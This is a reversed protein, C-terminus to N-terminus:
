TVTEVSARLAHFEAQTQELDKYFLMILGYTGDDGWACVGYRLKPGGAEGCLAEGGLPGADYGTPLKVIETDGLQRKLFGELDRIKNPAAVALIYAMNKKAAEGYFASVVATAAPDAKLGAENESATKVLGADKSRARGGLTKPASVSYVRPPTTPTPSVLKELQQGSPQPTTFASPEATRMLSRVQVVVLVAVVSAIVAVVAIVIRRKAARSRPPSPPPRHFDQWNDPTPNPDTVPRVTDPCM